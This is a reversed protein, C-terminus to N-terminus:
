LQLSHLSNNITTLVSSIATNTYSNFNQTITLDDIRQTLNNISYTFIQNERKLETVNTELEVIRKFASDFKTILSPLFNLLENNSELKDSISSIVNFLDGLTADDLTNASSMESASAHPSM